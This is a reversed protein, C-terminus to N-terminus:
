RQMCGRGKEVPREALIERRDMTTDEEQPPACGYQAPGRFADLRAGAVHYWLGTAVCDRHAVMLSMRDDFDARTPTRSSRWLKLTYRSRTLAPSVRSTVSRPCATAKSVGSGPGIVASSRSIAAFRAVWGM